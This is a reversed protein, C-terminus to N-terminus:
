RQPLYYGTKLSVLEDAAEGNSFRTADIQVTIMRGPGTNEEEFRVTLEFAANKEEAANWEEDYYLCYGKEGFFASDGELDASFPEDGSPDYGQALEAVSQARILARNKQESLVSKMYGQVFLELSVVVSLSFFLIVIIIEVFFANRKKTGTKGM